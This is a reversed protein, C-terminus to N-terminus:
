VIQISIDDINTYEKAVWVSRADRGLEETVQEVSAEGM